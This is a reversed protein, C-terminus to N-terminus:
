GNVVKLGPIAKIPTKSRSWGGCDQCQYRQYVCSKTRDLGRKQLRGAPCHTCSVTGRVSMNPHRNSWKRLVGYAQELGVVDRKNYRIMRAWSAPDGAMCGEWTKFGGVEAKGPFGLLKLLADLRNSNLAFRSRAIKLTDVSQYPKVPALGYQLFKANAKKNDFQDGNHAIVVDASNLVQWLKRVLARESLTDQAFTTVDKEGLWKYSFCLLEWPKVVKIVSEEHGAGWTYVVNPSTEIDYLLIKM